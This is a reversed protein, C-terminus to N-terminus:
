GLWRRVFGRALVPAVVALAVIGLVAITGLGDTIADLVPLIAALGTPTDTM